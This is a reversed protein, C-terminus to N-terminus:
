SGSRQVQRARRARKRERKRRALEKEAHGAWGPGYEHLHRNRV